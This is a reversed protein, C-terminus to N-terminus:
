ETDPAYVHHGSYRISPSLYIKYINHGVPPLLATRMAQDDYHNSPPRLEAGDPTVDGSNVIDGMNSVM